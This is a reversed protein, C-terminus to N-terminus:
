RLYTLLRTLIVVGHLEQLMHLCIKNASLFNVDLTDPLVHKIFPSREQLLLYTMYKIVQSLHSSSYM